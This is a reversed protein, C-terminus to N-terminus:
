PFGPNLAAFPNFSESRRQIPHVARFSSCAPRLRLRLRGFVASRLVRSRLVSPLPFRRTTPDRSSLVSFTFSCRHANLRPPRLTSASPDTHRCSVSRPLLQVRRRPPVATSFGHADLLHQLKSHLLLGPHAPMSLHRNLRTTSLCNCATTALRDCGRNSRLEPRRPGFPLRQQSAVSYCASPTGPDLSGCPSSLRRLASNRFRTRLVHLGLERVGLASPASYIPVSTSLLFSRSSFFSLLPAPV